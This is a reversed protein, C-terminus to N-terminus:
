LIEVKIDWTIILILDFNLSFYFTLKSCFATQLYNWFGYGPQGGNIPPILRLGEHGPMLSTKERAM